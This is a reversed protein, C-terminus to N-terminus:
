AEGDVSLLLALPSGPSVREGDRVLWRLFIGRQPSLIPTDIGGERIRGLVFGRELPREEEFAEEHVRGWGPSVVLRERISLFEGQPEGLDAPAARSSGEGGGLLGSVLMVATELDGIELEYCNADRLVHALVALGDAGFVGFNFANDFLVVMGEARSIPRLRTPGGRKYRPRVVHAVRCPAGMAGDRLDDPRVHWRPGRHDRIERPLRERLGPIAEVSEAGMTLPRPFPHLSGERDFLAMEESLYEFGAATLGAVLTTKGSDPPAPFVIGKGFLSAASAHVALFQGDLREFTMRNVDSLIFDLAGIASTLHPIDGNPLRLLPRGGKSRTLHYTPADRSLRVAFPSLLGDVIRGVRPLDIRIRFTYGLTRYCRDLSQVPPNRNM